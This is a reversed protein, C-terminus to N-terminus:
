VLPTIVCRGKYIDGINIEPSTILRVTTTKSGDNACSINVSYRGYGDWELIKLAKEVAYKSVNLAKATQKITGVNIADENKLREKFYEVIKNAMGFVYMKVGSEYLISM